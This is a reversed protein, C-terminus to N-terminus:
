TNNKINNSWSPYDILNVLEEIIIRIETKLNDIDTKKASFRKSHVSSDAFKKVKLIDIKVIKTLHWTKQESMKAILDSLFYYGGNGNKIQSELGHREFLEIILTELLKRLMFFCSNYLSFDYCCSAEKAFDVLYGRTNDFISLPFLNNTAVPIFDLDITQELEKIYGAELIYLDKRKIFKQGKRRQANKSLYSCINSYPSLSLENFCEVIDKAKVGDLKRQDILFHIFYDIKKSSSCSDFSSVKRLYSKLDM